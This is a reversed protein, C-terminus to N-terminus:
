LNQILTGKMQDELFEIKKEYKNAQSKSIKPTDNELPKAVKNMPGVVNIPKSAKAIPLSQDLCKNKLEDALKLFQFDTYFRADIFGSSDSGKENQKQIFNVDSDDFQYGPRQANFLKMDTKVNYRILDNKNLGLHNSSTLSQTNTAAKYPEWPVKSIIPTKISDSKSSM